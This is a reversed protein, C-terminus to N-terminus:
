KTLKEVKKKTAECFDKTGECIFNVADGGFNTPVVSELRHLDKSSEVLTIRYEVKKRM